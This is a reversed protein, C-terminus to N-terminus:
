GFYGKKYNAGVSKLVSLYAEEAAQLNIIGAPFSKDMVTNKKDEETGGSGM